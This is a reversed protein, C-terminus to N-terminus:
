EGIIPQLIGPFISKRVPQAEHVFVSSFLVRCPGPSLTHLIFAYVM